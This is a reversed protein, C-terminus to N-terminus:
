NALQKNIQEELFKLYERHMNCWFTSGEKTDNWSFANFITMGMRSYVLPYKNNNANSIFKTYIGKEKLFFALNQSIKRNM